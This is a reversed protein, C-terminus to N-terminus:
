KAISKNWTFDIQRYLLYRNIRGINFGITLVKNIFNKFIITSSIRYSYFKCIFYLKLVNLFRVYLFKLTVTKLAAYKELFIDNTTAVFLSIFFRM